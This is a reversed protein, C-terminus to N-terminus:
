RREDSQPFDPLVLRAANEVRVTRVYNNSAFAMKGELDQGFGCLHFPQLTVTFLGVKGLPEKLLEEHQVCANV